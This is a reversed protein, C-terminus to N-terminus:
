SSFQVNMSCYISKKLLIGLKEMLFYNIQLVLYKLVNIFKYVQERNLKM